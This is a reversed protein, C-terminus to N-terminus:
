AGLLKGGWPSQEAAGGARSARGGRTGMAGGRVAAGRGWSAEPLSNQGRRSLTRGLRGWGRERAVKRQGAGWWGSQPGDNTKTGPRAM